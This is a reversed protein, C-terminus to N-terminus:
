SIQVLLHQHTLIHHSNLVYTASAQLGVTCTSYINAYGTSWAKQLEFRDRGNRFLQLGLLDTHLTVNDHRRSGDLVHDYRHTNNLQM